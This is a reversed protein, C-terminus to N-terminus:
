PLTGSLTWVTGTDLSQNLVSIAGNAAGRQNAPDQTQLVSTTIIAAAATGNGIQVQINADGTGTRGQM